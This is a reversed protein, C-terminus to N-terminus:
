RILQIRLFTEKDIIFDFQLRVRDITRYYNFVVAEVGGKAVMGIVHAVRITSSVNDIKTKTIIRGRWGWTEIV